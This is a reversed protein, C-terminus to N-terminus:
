FYLGQVNVDQPCNMCDELGEDCVKNDCIAAVSYGCDGPCDVADEGFEAQCVEDGCVPTERPPCVRAESCGTDTCSVTTNCVSPNRAVDPCATDCSGCDAPCNGCNEAASCTGNGCCTGCDIACDGCSEGAECVADGCGAWSYASLFMAFVAYRM